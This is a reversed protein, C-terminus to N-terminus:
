PLVNKFKKYNKVYYELDKRQQFRKKREESNEYKKEIIKQCTKIYLDRHSDELDLRYWLAVLRREDGLPMDYAEWMAEWYCDIMDKKEKVYDPDSFVERTSVYLTPSMNRWDTRVIEFKDMRSLYELATEQDFYHLFMLVEFKEQKAADIEYNKRLLEPGGAVDEETTLRLPPVDIAFCSSVCLFFFLFYIKM